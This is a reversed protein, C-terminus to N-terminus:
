AGAQALRSRITDANEARILYRAESETLSDFGFGFRERWWDELQGHKARLNALTGNSLSITASDRRGTLATAGLVQGGHCEIFGRLNAITGGQGVFDDAILYGCGRSVPGDFLPPTALRHWGSAGTHGVRNIQVIELETPQDLLEALARALAAPIANVGADEAATVGVTRVSRRDGIIQRLEAVAAASLTQEVLAAAAEADGSKAATYLPHKKVQSEAAHLPIDPFAGWPRREPLGGADFPAGRKPPVTQDAM